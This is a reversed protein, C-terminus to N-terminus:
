PRNYIINRGKDIELVAEFEAYVIVNVTQTLAEAFHIEIRLNGKQVMHLCSGDCADPTLDFGFFTYGNGFDDRTLENGEDQAHKGTASFLNVYSRIYHGTEFNPQLPKAPVQRGDVYIALFNIGNNKAHFPNKEFTGNFADNDVCWLIIRKPLGGLFLNEHTHSMAGQPISYVKCDVPRIPYKATGKTLAQIHAMLVMPNLVAKRVFLIADVICVKYDPNAGSAMLSFADKSCVLRIKVTVGNLLFRDQMFLDVHLRGMMEVVRSGAIHRRREVLGANGGNEQTADMHGASDKYWLQSTLQTKKAEAGYSLLTEVYARFPYTNSSSTVQTDNLYVDVQSFLSHLWNNVPAVPADDDLNTGAGRIIKARVFLYTNVLDIYADGAGPVVFEIPGGSDLSTIPQHEIWQGEDISRQTPPVAFLDLESKVGECSQPHVFAMSPSCTKRERYSADIQQPEEHLRKKPATRKVRKGPPSSTALLSQLLDRGATKTRRKAATRINEGSLVDGAIQTGTKLAHNGLALAGRKILPAVTRLLGGLLSGFGHGRQVRAGAFYPLAGGVQQAYYENYNMADDNFM